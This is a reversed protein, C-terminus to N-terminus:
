RYLRTRNGLMSGMREIPHVEAGGDVDFAQDKEKILTDEIYRVM